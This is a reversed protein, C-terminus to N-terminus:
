LWMRDSFTPSELLKESQYRKMLFENWSRSSQTIFIFTHRSNTNRRTGSFCALLCAESYFLSFRFAVEVHTCPIQKCTTTTSANFSTKVEDDDRLGADREEIKSWSKKGEKKKPRIAMEQTSKWNTALSKFNTRAKLLKKRKHQQQEWRSINECKKKGREEAKVSDYFYGSRPGFSLSQFSALSFASFFGDVCQGFHSENWWSLYCLKFKEQNM